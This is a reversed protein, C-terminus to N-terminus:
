LWNSEGAFDTRYSEYPSTELVPPLEIRGNSYITSSPDIRRDAFDRGRQRSSWTSRKTSLSGNNIHGTIQIDAGM